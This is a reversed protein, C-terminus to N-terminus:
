TRVVGIYWIHRGSAMLLPRLSQQCDGDLQEAFDSIAQTSVNPVNSRDTERALHM